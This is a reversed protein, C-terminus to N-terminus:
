CRVLRPHLIIRCLWHRLALQMGTLLLGIMMALMLLSAYGIGISSLDFM